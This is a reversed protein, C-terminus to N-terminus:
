GTARASRRRPRFALAGATVGARLALFAAAPVLLVRRWGRWRKSAFRLLSRHHELVMRYPRRDTSAGQVHTVEGAPEYVVRWGANRLRWCLDVDEVYMFYHDDWGGIADLARRRLWIAAGSVWDVDRTLTPDADLERYRRTFRNAPRVVGLVAHGVTDRLNPVTRASPYRTGDPDRVAPGLAGLDPETDFRALAVAGTGARIRVDCNIVAVVAASTAATGHNAASAYGLNSGPVLVAVDPVAHRLADISGDTSGNDVIVVEPPGASTDALLSQVCEILLPGAEYNVVVAAWRPSSM